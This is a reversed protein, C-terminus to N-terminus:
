VVSKRDGWKQEQAKMFANRSMEQRNTEDSLVDIVAEALADVDNFPVLRGTNNQLLEAAYAYPTSVAVTGLGLAMALTGSVSQERDTYANVYVSASRLMVHLDATSAFSNNFFIQQPATKNAEQQIYEYYEKCGVGSPHPTGHILYVADPVVKLVQRMAWIMHELGKMPHILGNSFIVKKGKFFHQEPTGELRSYPLNPGGHPIVVVDRTPIALFSNMIHRMSHTMVVLRDSMFSAQQVWAHLNDQYNIKVTHITTFVRPSKLERLFCTLHDGYLMGFEYQVLATHYRQNNIFQAASIYSMAESESFTKKVESSNYESSPQDKHKVAVVDVRSGPPCSELLASRLASSFTAIGCMRPSWTSVIVFDCTPTKRQPKALLPSSSSPSSSHNTVSSPYKRPRNRKYSRISCTKFRGTQGFQIDLNSAVREGRSMGQRDRASGKAALEAHIQGVRHVYSRAVADPSFRKVFQKGKDGLERAFERDSYLRRMEERLSSINIEAWKGGKLWDDGTTPTLSSVKILLGSEKTVFETSGGFDTTIVPLGMIMAEHTPLGWGEAHTSLVFADCSSYLSVLEQTPLHDSVIEIRTANPDDGRRSLPLRRWALHDDIEKRILYPSFNEDSIGQGSHIYTRLVLVVDSNNAFEQMYGEVLEKYGKRDEMKFVACFAFPRKDTGDTSSLASQVSSKGRPHGDLKTGPLALPQVAFPDFFYEDVTEGMIQMKSTEVGGNAFAELQWQSPVWVEDLQNCHRAWPRPLSDTEYMYRGIIYSTDRPVWRGMERYDRAYLVISNDEQIDEELEMVSELINKARDDGHGAMEVNNVSNDDVDIQFTVTSNLRDKEQDRLTRSLASFGKYPSTFSRYATYDLIDKFFAPMGSLTDSHECFSYRRILTRVDIYKYLTQLITAAELGQSGGCHIVWTLKAPTLFNASREIQRKEKWRKSFAQFASLTSLRMYLPNFLSSTLDNTEDDDYTHLAKVTVGVAQGVVNVALGMDRVRLCMDIDEFGPSM